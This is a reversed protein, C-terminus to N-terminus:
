KAQKVHHLPGQQTHFLNWTKNNLRMFHPIKKSGDWM